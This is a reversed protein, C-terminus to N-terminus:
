KQVEFFQYVIYMKKRCSCLTITCESFGFNLETRCHRASSFSLRVKARVRSYCSSKQRFKLFTCMRVNVLFRYFFAVRLSHLTPRVLFRWDRNPEHIRLCWFLCATRWLYRMETLLIRPKEISPIRKSSTRGSNPTTQPSKLVICEWSTTISYLAITLRIFHSCYLWVVFVRSEFHVHSRCRIIPPTHNPAKPVPEPSRKPCMFRQFVFLITYRM